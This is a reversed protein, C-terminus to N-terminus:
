GTHESQTPSAESRGWTDWYMLSEVPTRSAAKFVETPTHAVPILAVQTYDDPIGLLEAAEQERALHIATWVSGLGRSRLALMFSWVAPLISGYLEAADATATSQVRGLICPVVLVPVRHLVNLLYAASAYVRSDQPDTRRSLDARRQFGGGDANRCIEALSAKVEPDTVVLWRWGQANGGTPAQLALRLCDVITQPNVPRNLDLHRRVARTTSLLEDVTSLDLDKM